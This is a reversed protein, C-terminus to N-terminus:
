LAAHQHLSQGHVPHVDAFCLNFVDQNATHLSQEVVYHKNHGDDYLMNYFGLLTLTPSKKMRLWMLMITARLPGTVFTLRYTSRIM